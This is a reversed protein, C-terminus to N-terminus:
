VCVCVCVFYLLAVLPATIHLSSSYDPPHLRCQATPSLCSPPQCCVLLRFFVTEPPQYQKIEYVSDNTWVILGELYTGPRSKKVLFPPVRFCGKVRQQPLEFQQVISSAQAGAIHPLSSGAGAILKSIIAVRANDNSESSYACRDSISRTARPVVCYM